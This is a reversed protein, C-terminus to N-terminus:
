HPDKQNTDLQRVEESLQKLSKELSEQKKRSLTLHNIWRTEMKSRDADRLDQLRRVESVLRTVAIVLISVLAVYAGGEFWEKTSDPLNSALPIPTSVVNIEPYAYGGKQAADLM